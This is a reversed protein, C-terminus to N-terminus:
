LQGRGAAGQNSNWVTPRGPQHAYRRLTSDAPMGQWPRYLQPQGGITVDPLVDTGSDDTIFHIGNLTMTRSAYDLVTSYFEPGTGSTATITETSGGKGAPKAAYAGSALFVLTFVSVLGFLNRAKKKM